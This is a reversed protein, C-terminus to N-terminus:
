FPSSYEKQFEEWSKKQYGEIFYKLIPDLSQPTQYGPIPQLLDLNEDLFAVTPYSLKGNLLAAAFEHYGGRGSQVYKYTEGKFLIDKKQEADLKVAYYNENIYEAIKENQFTYKDMKKCYGCWDTYVDIIVKKPTKKSKKIAEEISIWEIKESGKKSDSNDIYTYSFFFLSVLLLFTFSLAKKSIIM